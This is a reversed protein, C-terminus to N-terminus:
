LNCVLKEKRLLLRVTYSPIEVAEAFLVISNNPVEKLIKKAKNRNHVLTAILEM